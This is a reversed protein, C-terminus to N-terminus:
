RWREIATGDGHHDLGGVAAVGHPRAGAVEREELSVLLLSSGVRRATATAAHVGGTWSTM